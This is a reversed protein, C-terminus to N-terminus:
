EEDHGGGGDGGGDTVGGGNVSGGDGGSVGGGEGGIEGPPEPEGHGQPGSDSSLLVAAAIAIGVIVWNLGGGQSSIRHEDLGIKKAVENAAHFNFDLVANHMEMLETPHDRAMAALIELDRGTRTIHDPLFREPLELETIRTRDINFSGSTAKFGSLGVVARVNHTTM